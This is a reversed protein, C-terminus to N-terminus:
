LCKIVRLVLLKILIPDADFQKMRFEYRHDKRRAPFSRLMKLERQFPM